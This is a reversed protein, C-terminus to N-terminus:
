YYDPTVSRSDLPTYESEEVIQSSSLNGPSTQGAPRPTITTVHQSENNTISVFAWFKVEPRVATLEIRVREQAALQPYTSALDFMQAYAPTVPFEGFDRNVGHHADVLVLLTDVLPSQSNWPYIRLRIQEGANGEFDYVRLAQRFRSDMPVYLLQIRDKV